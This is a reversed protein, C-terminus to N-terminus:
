HDQQCQVLGLGTAEAAGRAGLQLAAPLGSAEKAGRHVGSLSRVPVGQLPVKEPHSLAPRRIGDCPPLKGAAPPGVPSSSFSSNTALEVDWLREHRVENLEEINPIEEAQNVVDLARRM